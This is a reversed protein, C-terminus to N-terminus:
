SSEPEKEKGQCDCNIVIAAFSDLHFSKCWQSRWAREFVDMGTAQTGEESIQTQTECLYLASDSVEVWLKLEALGM